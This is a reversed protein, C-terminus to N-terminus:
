SEESNWKIDEVNSAHNATRAAVFLWDSLRNLYMTMVDRVPEANALTWIRREARRCITRAFHLQSALPTGGPLIFNRLPELTGTMKDISAELEESHAGTLSRVAHPGENPSALEGGMQFLCSQIQRLERDMLGAPGISRCIGLAANLEDVTGIAESRADSKHIRLGGVLGTTGDDGTKTYIRV